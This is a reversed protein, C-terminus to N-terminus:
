RSPSLSVWTNSEAAQRAADLVQQVRYGDGFSPNVEQGLPRGAAKAARVANVFDTALTVFPRLRPDDSSLGGQYHAPIELPRLREEGTLGGQLRGDSDILLTGKSGYAEIREGPGFRAVVSVNVTAKGGRAFRCLLTFSDETEVERWENSDPLPRRPVFTELQAAVAAIDGFMYHLADIYHSGVAGLYGGGTERQSLWGFPRASPDASSGSFLTINALYLEGLFGENILQKMYARAPVYRFEHDIMAVLGSNRAADLMARAETVDRAMPKECLVHKGAQLAMISQQAHQYPPSVISVADLEPLQLLQQYDATAFPINFDRAVQEAREPRGTSMVGVIQVGPIKLFGPIQVRSGFGTGVVAIKLPSGENYNETTM